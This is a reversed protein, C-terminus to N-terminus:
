TELVSNNAKECDFDEIAVPLLRNVHLEQTIVNKYGNYVLYVADVIGDKFDNISRTMFESSRQM